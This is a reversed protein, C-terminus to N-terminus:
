QANRVARTEVGNMSLVLASPPAEGAVEFTLTIDFGPADETFFRLPTEPRFEGRPSGTLSAYLKGQSVVVTIV